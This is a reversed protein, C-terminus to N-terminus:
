MHYISRRGWSAMSSNKQLLGQNWCSKALSKTKQKAEKEAAKFQEQTILVESVLSKKFRDVTSVANNIKETNVSEVMDKNGM